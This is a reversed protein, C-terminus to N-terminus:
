WIEVDSITGPPPTLIRADDYEDTEHFERRKSNHSFHTEEDSIERRVINRRAQLSAKRAEDLVTRQEHIANFIATEDIARRGEERLRRVADRHEWLTIPERRLDAYPVRVHDGDSLEVYVASLNRPDYKVRLRISPQMLLHALGGDQYRINFLQLGDRRIAREQYPLFDLIFAQEDVPLRIHSNEISQSWYSVPPTGIGRHIENHYPGVIELTIIRELERFSLCARADSLYDSKAVVNSFTTGPLSQIRRMLTGMLREIHGGYRPTAPPRYFIKIGHQACGREFARSHFEAGNDVHICKPLGFAPWSNEILREARWIDKPLVAQSLALAVSTASPPELSLLFGLVMRSYVDMVLTLWPRGISTRTLEDVLMLDVKTHDIQIIELPREAELSGQIQHFVAEARARGERKRVVTRMNRAAIRTRLAKLSPSILGAGRCLGSLQRHVQKLSPKERTLYVQDIVQEILYEVSESLRKSGRQPGRSRALLATTTQETRLKKLLRYTHQVSIGLTQSAQAVDSYRRDSNELLPRLVEHRKSAESWALDDASIISKSTNRVQKM